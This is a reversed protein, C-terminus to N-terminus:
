EVYVLKYGIGHQNILSNNPLKTKLRKIINRISDESVNEKSYDIWFLEIIENISHYKESYSTLISMLFREKKTLHIEKSYSTLINTERYWIVNKNIKFVVTNSKEDELENILNELINELERKKIPKKLYQVLNLTIARLLKEEELHATLIIIKVNKNHSRIDEALTLGDIIPMNIDLILIDPSHMEYLELAERGDSALYLNKVFRKLLIAYGEQIEPDDEAYLITYDKM